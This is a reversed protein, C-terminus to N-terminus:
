AANGAVIEIVIAVPGNDTEFTVTFAGFYGLPPEWSFVGTANDLHSGGPLAELRGDIMLAASTVPGGLELRLREGVPMTVRYVDDPGRELVVASADATGVRARPPVPLASRRALTPVSRAPAPADAAVQHLVDFFRSGFQGTNGLSDTAEFSVTHRGNPLTQGQLFFALGKEETPCVGPFVADVDTRAPRQTTTLGNASTMLVGDVYMRYSTLCRQGAGIGWGMFVQSMLLVGGSTPADIAGFPLQSNDNDVTVLSRGLLSAAGTTDVAYASLQFTGQGGVSAANPIHPLMNTLVMLGWGSRDAQPYTSFQTAVDPRAGSVFLADGIYVGDADNNPTTRCAGQPRDIAELCDRWIEVRSVGVDDLAWGTVAVAGALGTAGPAPTDLAGFPLANTTAPQITATVTLAASAGVSTAEVVVQGNLESAASFDYAPNLRVDLTGTISVNPNSRTVVLWEPVATVSWPTAQGMVGVLVTRAGGLDMGGVQRRGVLAISSPSVSLSANIVALTVTRSARSGGNASVVVRVSATEALQSVTLTATQAGSVTGGDAYNTWISGSLFQWQYTPTAGYANVAATATVSAGAAVTAGVPQQTFELPDVTMQVPTTSATGHPNVAVLRLYQGDLAIPAALISLRDTTTGSYTAGDTLATWGGVGDASQQWQLAPTPAGGAVSANLSGAGQVRLTTTGGTFTVVPDGTVSVIVTRSIVRSVGNAVVVRYRSPNDDVSTPWTVISPSSVRYGGAPQPVPEWVLVSGFPFGLSRTVERELQYDVAPTGSAQLTITGAAGAPVSVDAPETTIVPAAGTTPAGRRIAGRETVVLQGDPLWAIGWASTFTARLGFGDHGVETSSGGVTTVVGDPTVRRVGIGDAVYAIGDADVDVLGTSYFRAAAGTGDVLDPVEGIAPTGGALLASTGDLNVRHVSADSTIILYGAPAWAIGLPRHQLQAVTEVQGNTRIVRVASNGSDAVYLDGSPALALASPLNFRAATGAGDVLGSGTGPQFVPGPSPGAITTVAGSVDVRRIAHNGYDAVFVDGSPAVAVDLPYNFHASAASGDAFGGVMLVGAHTSVEGAGTVRRIAHAELDVVLLDGNPLRDVGAARAFRATASTGDTAPAHVTGGSLTTVAGQSSLHRLTRNGTDAIVVTGDARVALGQPASFRAQLGAADVSGAVPGGATTTVTQDLDLRRITHLDAFYLRGDPAEGLGGVALLRAASGVGDVMESGAGTTGALTNGIGTADSIQVLRDMHTFWSVEVGVLGWTPHWILDTVGSTNPITTATGDASVRIVSGTPGFRGFTVDSVYVNGEPDAAPQHSLERSFEILTSVVGAPTIRRIRTWNNINVQDTVFVDGNSSRTLGVPRVFRADVRPGDARGPLSLAGAYTSVSGDAGVLRIVSASTDAVLVSDDPLTVMGAPSGFIATSSPGDVAHAVDRGTLTTWEYVTVLQQATTSTAAWGWVGVVVVALILLRRM